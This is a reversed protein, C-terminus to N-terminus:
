VLSGFGLKKSISNGTFFLILCIIARILGVAIGRAYDYISGQMLIRFIYTDIVESVAYIQPNQLTWLQEFNVNLLNSLSIVFVLIIIGQMGPISIHWIKRMYNAGDIDAAEYLEPNISTLASLYMITGFGVGKWVSTLVVLPLFYSAESFFYVSNDTLRLFQLISNVVGESSLLKYWIGSAVVWSIFYPIYSVTQVIRKFKKRLLANFALALIIPTPFNFVLTWFGIIVTNRMVMKFDPLAFLIRFNKLGVFPSGFFGKVPNFDQFAGILGYLPIYSFVTFLVIGPLLFLLIVKQKKIRRFLDNNVRFNNNISIKNNISINNNVNINNNIIPDKQANKIPM